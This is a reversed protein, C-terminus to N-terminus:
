DNVLSAPGLNVVNHLARNYLLINSCPSKVFFAKCFVSRKCIVANQKRNWSKLVQTTIFLFFQTIEFYFFREEGFEGSEKVVATLMVHSPQRVQKIKNTIVSPLKVRLQETEKFSSPFGSLYALSQMRILGPAEKDTTQLVCTCKVTGNFGRIINM